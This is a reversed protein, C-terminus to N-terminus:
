RNSDTVLGKVVRIVQADFKITSDGVMKPTILLEVEVPEAKQAKDNKSAENVRAKAIASQVAQAIVSDLSQTFRPFDALELKPQQLTKAASIPPPLDGQWRARPKQANVGSQPVNQDLPPPLSEPEMRGIDRSKAEKIFELPKVQGIRNKLRNFEEDTEEQTKGETVREAMKHLYRDKEKRGAAVAGRALGELSMKGDTMMSGLTDLTDSVKGGVGMTNGLKNWIRILEEGSAVIGRQVDMQAKDYDTTTKTGVDEGKTLIDRFTSQGDSPATLGEKMGKMAELMKNAQAQDVSLMQGLLQRQLVFQNVLAPDKIADQRTLVRGGGYQELTKQIGEMYKAMGAGSKDELAEEMELGAGLAGGRGGLGAQVGIFSRQALTMGNIGRTYSELLEPALGVRGTNALSNAFMNFVPLVSNISGGWMKLSSASSMVTATVKDMGLGTGNSADKIKGFMEVSGTVSEGLELQAKEMSSTITNTAMGTANHILLVADLATVQKGLVSYANGSKDADLSAKSQAASMFKAMEVSAATVEEMTSRTIEATKLSKKHFDTSAGSAKDYANAMDDGATGINISSQLLVRDMAMTAEQMKKYPPLADNMKNSFVNLAYAAALTGGSGIADGIGFKAAGNALKKMIKDAEGFMKTLESGWGDSFSSGSEKGATKAMQKLSSFLDNAKDGDLVIGMKAAQKTMDDLSSLHKALINLDGVALKAKAALAEMGTAQKVFDPVSIHKLKSVESNMTKASQTASQVSKTLNNLEAQAAGTDVGAASTNTTQTPDQPDAM